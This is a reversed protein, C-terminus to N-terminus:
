WAPWFSKRLHLAGASNWLEFLPMAERLTFSPPVPFGQLGKAFGMIDVRRKAWEGLSHSPAMGIAKTLELPAAFRPDSNSLAGVLAGRKFSRYGNAFELILRPVSLHYSLINYYHPDKYKSRRYLAQFEDVALLV